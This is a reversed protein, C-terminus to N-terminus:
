AIGRWMSPVFISKGPSFFNYKEFLPRPDRTSNNKKSGTVDRKLDMHFAEQFIPDYSRSEEIVGAVPSTLYIVTYSEESLQELVNYFLADIRSDTCCM